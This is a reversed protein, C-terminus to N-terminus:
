RFEKAVISGQPLLQRILSITYSPDVTTVDDLLQLDDCTVTNPQHPPPSSGHQESSSTGHQESSSAAAAAALLLGWGV